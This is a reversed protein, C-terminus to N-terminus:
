RVMAGWTMDPVTVIHAFVSARLVGGSGSLHMINSLAMSCTILETRNWWVTIVGDVLNFGVVGSARGDITVDITFGSASPM